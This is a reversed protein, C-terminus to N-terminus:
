GAIFRFYPKRSIFVLRKPKGETKILHTHHHPISKIASAPARAYLNYGMQEYKSALKHFDAFMKDSFHAITDVHALPTIMLHDAVKQGDWISYAFINRIVKFLKTEEVLEENHRTCFVCMDRPLTKLYEKYIHEEERSRTATM